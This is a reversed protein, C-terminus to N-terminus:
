GHGIREAAEGEIEVQAAGGGLRLRAKRFGLKGFGGGIRALFAIGLAIGIALLAGADEGGAREGSGGFVDCCAAHLHGSRDIRHTEFNRENVCESAMAMLRSRRFHFRDGTTGSTRGDVFASGPTGDRPGHLAPGAEAAQARTLLPVEQWRKEGPPRVRIAAGLSDHGDKFITAAVDVRDGVTRKVPYRGCDIQPEVAQVVIRAPPQKSTPLPVM